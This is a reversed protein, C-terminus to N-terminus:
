YCEANEDGGTLELFYKELNTRNAYISKVKINSASLEMNIEGIDNLREFVHITQNNVVQYNHINLRDLITCAREPEELFIEIRENCKILLEEKSLEEILVGQNIIGFNTAIKYLEELIHSSIIVTINREANLRIITERVEVIGQPDLGNIPEDLLLLDPEGILAMGIGLRQKMGLSFKEVKKNGTDGLGIMDLIGDIYNKKFIWRKKYMGSCIAKLKLNDFANMSPYLGPTDILIGIRNLVNKVEKGKNGFLEIQGGTPIALGSIMKLLTTKGSGNRGILGYISGKKIHMNVNDVAKQKWYHKSLNNAKLLYESM